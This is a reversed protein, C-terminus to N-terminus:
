DDHRSFLSHALVAGGAFMQASECALAGELASALVPLFLM